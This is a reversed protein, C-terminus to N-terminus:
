VHARGIKMTNEIPLNFTMWSNVKDMKVEEAGQINKIATELKPGLFPCHLGGHGIDMKVYKRNQGMPKNNESQAFLNLACFSILFYIATIHILFHKKM